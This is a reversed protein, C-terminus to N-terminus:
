MKEISAKIMKMTEIKFQIQKIWAEKMMIKGELMRAMVMKKTKEDLKEWMKMMHEAMMQEGGSGHEMGKGEM